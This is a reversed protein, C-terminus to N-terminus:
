DSSAREELWEMIPVVPIQYLLDVHGAGPISVELKHESSVAEIVGDRIHKPQLLDKGGSAAVLPTTIASMGDKYCYCPEDEDDEM